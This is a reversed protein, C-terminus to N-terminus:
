DLEIIWCQELGCHFGLRAPDARLLLDGCVNEGLVTLVKGHKGVDTRMQAAANAPDGIVLLEMTRTVVAHERFVAGHEGSRWGTRKIPKFAFDFISDKVYPSASITSFNASQISSRKAHRLTHSAM